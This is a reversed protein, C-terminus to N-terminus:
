KKKTAKTDKTTHIPTRHLVRKHIGKGSFKLIRPEYIRLPINFEPLLNEPYNRLYSHGIM